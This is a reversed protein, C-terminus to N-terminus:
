GLFREELRFAEMPDQLMLVHNLAFEYIRGRPPTFRNDNGM